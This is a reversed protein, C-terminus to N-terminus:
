GGAPVARGETADTSLPLQVGALQAVWPLVMGVLEEGGHGQAHGGVVAVALRGLSREWSGDGGLGM